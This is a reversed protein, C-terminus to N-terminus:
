IKNNYFVVFFSPFVLMLKVIKKVLFWEFWQLSYEFQRRLSNNNSRPRNNNPCDLLFPETEMPLVVM